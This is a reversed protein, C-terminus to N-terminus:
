TRSQQGSAQNPRPYPVTYSDVAKSTALANLFLSIHKHTENAPGFVAGPFTRVRLRRPALTTYRFSVVVVPSWYWPNESM